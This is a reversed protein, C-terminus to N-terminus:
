AQTVTDDNVEDVFDALMDEVSVEENNAAIKVTVSGEVVDAEKEPSKIGNVKPECPQSENLKVQEKVDNDLKADDDLSKLMQGCTIQVDDTDNSSPLNEDDLKELVTVRQTGTNPNGYVVEMSEQSAIGDMTDNSVVQPMQTVAEHINSKENIVELENSSNHVEVSIEHTIAVEEVENESDSYCIEVSNGSSSHLSIKDSIEEELRPKKNMPEEVIPIIEVENIKTPIRYIPFYIHYYCWCM